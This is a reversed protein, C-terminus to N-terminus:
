RVGTYKEPNDTEFMDVGLEVAQQVWYDDRLIAGSIFFGAEHLQKIIEPTM